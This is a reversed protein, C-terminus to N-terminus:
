STCSRLRPRILPAIKIARIYDIHANKPRDCVERNFRCIIEKLIRKELEYNRIREKAIVNLMPRPIFPPDAMRLHLYRPSNMKAEPWSRTKGPLKIMNHLEGPPASWIGGPDLLWLSKVEDPFLAAYMLSIQGGM